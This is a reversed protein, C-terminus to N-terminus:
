AEQQPSDEKKDLWDIANDLLSRVALLQEKSANRMRMRFESTDFDVGEVKMRKEVKERFGKVGDRLWDEFVFEEVPEHNYRKNVM